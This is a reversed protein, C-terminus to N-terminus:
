QEYIWELKDILTRSEVKKLYVAMEAAVVEASVGDKDLVNTGCMFGIAEEFAFIVKKNDQLLSHARNGMWKFGTLTDECSLGEKECIARLIHSSVTSHLMYVDKLQESSMNKNNSKFNFCLWWGILTAIENGNFIKWEGTSSKEAIALRDADPDNALIITAENENATKIALDLASKGEEPNPFKVTPFEPDPQVQEKVPIFPNLNFSRFAEVSFDYGVGHMATYVFKLDTLSNLERHFCLTKLQEYYQKYISDYPNSLLVNDILSTVDWSTERPELNEEIAKAIGKDHPSIIQAGNDFYVKYGNDEKPNHSATVM